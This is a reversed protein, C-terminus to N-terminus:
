ISRASTEEEGEVILRTCLFFLDAIFESVYLIFFLSTTYKTTCGSLIM